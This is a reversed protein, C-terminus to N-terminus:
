DWESKWIGKILKEKKERRWKKIVVERHRAVDLDNHEEYYVIRKVGHKATYKSGKGCVHQKWRDAIDWTCGTYYKGNNCEIIYVYWHWEKLM